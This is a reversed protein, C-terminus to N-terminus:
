ILHSVKCASAHWPLLNSDGTVFIMDLHDFLKAADKKVYSSDLEYLFDDLNEKDRIFFETETDVM